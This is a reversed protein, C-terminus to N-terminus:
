RNVLSALFGVIASIITARVTTREEVRTLRETIHDVKDEVRQVSAQTAKVNDHILDLQTPM